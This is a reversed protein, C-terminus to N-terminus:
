GISPRGSGAGSYSVAIRFTRSISPCTGGPCTRDVLRVVPAGGMEPLERHCRELGAAARSGNNVTAAAVDVEDKSVIVRDEVSVGGRLVARIAPLEDRVAVHRHGDALDADCGAVVDDGVGVPDDDNRSVHKELNELARSTAAARSRASRLASCARARM